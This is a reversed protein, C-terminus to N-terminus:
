SSCSTGHLKRQRTFSLAARHKDIVQRVETVVQSVVQFQEAEIAEHAVREVARAHIAEVEKDLVELTDLDAAPVEQVIALLQLLQEQDQNLARRWVSMMWACGSGIISVLIAGLYFYDEFQELLSTQDGNYYAAAREGPRAAADLATRDSRCLRGSM